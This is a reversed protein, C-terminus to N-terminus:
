GQRENRARWAWVRLGRATQLIQDFLPALAPWMALVAQNEPMGPVFLHLLHEM